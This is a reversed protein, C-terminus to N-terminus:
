ADDRRRGGYSFYTLTMECLYRSDADADPHRHLPGAPRCGERPTWTTVSWSTARAAPTDGIVTDFTMFSRPRTPGVVRAFTRSVMSARPYRTLTAARLRRCPRVPVM